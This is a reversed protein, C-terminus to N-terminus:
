PSIVEAQAEERDEAEPTEALNGLIGETEDGFAKDLQNGIDLNIDRLEDEM